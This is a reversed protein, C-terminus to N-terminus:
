KDFQRTKNANTETVAINNSSIEHVHLCVAMTILNACLKAINNSSTEHGHLRVAMTILNACLKTM